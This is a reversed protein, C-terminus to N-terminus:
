GCCKGPVICFIRVICSVFLNPCCVRCCCCFFNIIIINIYTITVKISESLFYSIFKTIALGIGIKIDFYFGYLCICIGNIHYCFNFICTSNGTLFDYFNVEGCRCTIQVFWILFQCSVLFDFYFRTFRFLYIDGKAHIFHCAVIFVFLLVYQLVTSVLDAYTVAGSISYFCGIDIQVFINNGFFSCIGQSHCFVLHLCTSISSIM